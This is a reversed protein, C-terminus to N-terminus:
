ARNESIKLQPYKNLLEEPIHGSSELAAELAKFESDSLVDLDFGNFLEKGLSDLEEDTLAELYAKSKVPDDPIPGLRRVAKEIPTLYKEELKSLRKKLNKMERGWRRGAFM